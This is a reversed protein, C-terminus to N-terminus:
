AKYRKSFVEWEIVSASVAANLSQPGERMPIIVSGSCVDRVSDSVGHGENGIVFGIKGKSLDLKTLEESNKDLMAAYISFGDNRLSKIDNELRDCVKVDMRFLSGMCARVTKPGYIDASNGGVYVSDVGFAEASRIVTGINGPDALSDLLMVFADKKYERVLKEPKKAVTFVGQPANEFSMKAYVEDSVEFLEGYAPSLLTEGWKSIAKSTAFVKEIVIGSSVADEFLKIGEFAFLGTKDRLKKDCLLSAYLVTPNKRSTIIGNTKIM